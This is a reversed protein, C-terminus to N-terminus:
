GSLSKTELILRKRYSLFLGKHHCFGGDQLSDECSCNFEADSTVCNSSNHCPSSLCLDVIETCNHGTYGSDCMCVLGDGDQLEYCLGNYGCYDDTCEPFISQWVDSLVEVWCYAKRENALALCTLVFPPDVLSFDPCSYM